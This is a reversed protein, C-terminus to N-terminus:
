MRPLDLLLVEMELLLSTNNLRDLSKELGTIRRTADGAEMKSALMNVKERYDINILPATSGSAVHLVDRWALVWHQLLERLEIRMRERDERKNGHPKTKDEAFKFRERRTSHVLLWFDELIEKRKELLGDEKLFRMATGPKGGSIHSLFDAQDPAVKERKELEAALSQIAMPRLRLVECRSSITPLLAEVSDATLLLIAKDPAEELTKLLANQANVNANEFQILLGIRYHSEYPSLNLKYELERIQDIIIETRDDPKKIVLLDPQQMREIQKCIRCQGCPEGPAKHSACNLAQAFRLALTRRGTGPTGTFLYAHRVDNNVIHRKLLDTAWEHGIIDWTMSDMTAYRLFILFFVPM